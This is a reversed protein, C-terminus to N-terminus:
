RANAQRGEMRDGGYINPQANGPSSRNAAPSDGLLGKYVDVVSALSSHWCFRDSTRSAALGMLRRQIAGDAMIEMAAQAFAHPSYESILRGDVGDHTLAAASPVNPSLVALGSAMAELNVNGFAETVSPNILLDASAVAEGLAAGELHGLFTANPLMRAIWDRAPGDGIVMPRIDFGRGRLLAITEAFIDLGKEHVLRGFFLPVV